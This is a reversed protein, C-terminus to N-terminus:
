EDCDMEKTYDQDYLSVVSMSNMELTSPFSTMHNANNNNYLLRQNCVDSPRLRIPKQASEDFLKKIEDFDDDEGANIESIEEEPQILDTVVFNYM